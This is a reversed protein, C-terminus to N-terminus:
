CTESSLKQRTGIIKNRRRSKGKGKRVNRERRCRDKRKGAM